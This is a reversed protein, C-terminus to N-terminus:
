RREAVKKNNAKSRGLVMATSDTEMLPPLIPLGIVTIKPVPTSRISPYKSEGLNGDWNPIRGIHDLKTM